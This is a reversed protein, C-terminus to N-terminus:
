KRSCECNSRGRNQRPSRRASVYILNFCPLNHYFSNIQTHPIQLFRVDIFKSHRLLAAFTRDDPPTLTPATAAEVKATQRAFAKAFGGMKSSETEPELPPPETATSLRAGERGGRRLVGRLGLARVVYGLM